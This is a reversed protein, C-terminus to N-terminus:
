QQCAPQKLRKTIVTCISDDGFKESKKEVYYFVEWNEAGLKNLGEILENISKYKVEFRNYEWM